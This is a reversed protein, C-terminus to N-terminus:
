GMAPRGTAKSDSLIDLRILRTHWNEQRRRYKGVITGITGIPHLSVQCIDRTDTVPCVWTKTLWLCQLMKQCDNMSEHNLEDENVTESDSHWAQVSTSLLLFFVDDRNIHGVLRSLFVESWVNWWNEITTFHFHSHTSTQSERRNEEVSIVEETRNEDRVKAYLVRFKLEDSSLCVEFKNPYERFLNSVYIWSKSMMGLFKNWNM